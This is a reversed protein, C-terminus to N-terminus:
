TAALARLELSAVAALQTPGNQYPEADPKLGPAIELYATIGNRTCYAAAASGGPRTGYVGAHDEPCPSPTLPESFRSTIAPPWGGNSLGLTVSYMDNTWQCAATDPIPRANVVHGIAAEVDNLNLLSCANLQAGNSIATGDIIAQAKSKGAQASAATKPAPAPAHMPAVPASPTSAAALIAILATSFVTTVGIGIWAPWRQYWRKRPPQPPPPQPPEGTFPYDHLGPGHATM